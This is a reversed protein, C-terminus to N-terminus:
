IRERFIIHRAFDDYDDSIIKFKSVCDLEHNFDFDSYKKYFNKMITNYRGSAKKYDCSNPYKIYLSIISPLFEEIFETRCSIPLVNIKYHRRMISGICDMNLYRYTEKYVSGTKYRLANNCVFVNNYTKDYVKEIDVWLNFADFQNTHQNLIMYIEDSNKDKYLYSGEWVGSGDEVKLSSIFDEVIKVTNM